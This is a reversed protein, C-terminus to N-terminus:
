RIEAANEAYYRWASEIIEDIGAHRPQWGLLRSAKTADAVLVPPDGVRPAAIDYRVPQGTVREAAAIIEFVSFGEGGGCHM